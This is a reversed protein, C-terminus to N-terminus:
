YDLLRTYESLSMPNLGKLMHYVITFFFLSQIGGRKYQEGGKDKVRETLHPLLAIAFKRAVASDVKLPGFVKPLDLQAWLGKLIRLLHKDVVQEVEKSNLASPPGLKKLQTFLKRTANNFAKEDSFHRTQVTSQRLFDPLENKVWRQAEGQVHDLTHFYGARYSIMTAYFFPWDTYFKQRPIEVSNNGLTLLQREAPSKDFDRGLSTDKTYVTLASESHILKGNLRVQLNGEPHDHNQIDVKLFYSGWSVNVGLDRLIAMVYSDLNNDQFMGLFPEGVRDDQWIYRLFKFDEEDLPAEVGTGLAQIGASHSPHNFRRPKVHKFAKQLGKFGESKYISYLAKDIGQPDYYVTVEYEPMGELEGSPSSDVDEEIQMAVICAVLISPSIQDWSIIALSQVFDVLDSTSTKLSSAELTKFVQLAVNKYYPM